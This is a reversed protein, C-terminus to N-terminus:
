ITGPRTRFFRNDPDNLWRKLAKPDNLIGKRQLDNYVVLPLSAVKSFEGFKGHTENYSKKNLEVVSSVDQEAVIKAEDTMDDYYFVHSIGTKPDHDMVKRM